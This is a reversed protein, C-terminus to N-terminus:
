RLEKHSFVSLLMQESQDLYQNLHEAALERQNSILFNLLSQDKEVWPKQFFEEDPANAFLLRLQAIITSFFLDFRPSGIANVISQHFRLSYTAVQNWNNNEAASQMMELSDQMSHIIERKIHRGSNIAQLELTRRVRYIDKVDARTMRRVTVGKNRQYDVLGECLLQRLAERVTNRSAGLTEALEIEGLTQGGTIEGSIMMNRLTNAIREFAPLDTQPSPM